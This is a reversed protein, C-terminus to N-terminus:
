TRQKLHDLNVKGSIAAVNKAFSFAQEDEVVSRFLGYIIQQNKTKVLLDKIQESEEPCVTDDVKLQLSLLFVRRFLTMRMKQTLSAKKWFATSCKSFFHRLVEESNFVRAMPEIESELIYHAERKSFGRDEMWHCYAESFDKEINRIAIKGLIIGGVLGVKERQRLLDYLLEIM